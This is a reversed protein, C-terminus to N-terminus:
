AALRGKIAALGLAFNPLRRALPYGSIPRPEATPLSLPTDAAEVWAAIDRGIPGALAVGRGNCAQVALTTEDVRVYRPQLDANLWATGTWAYELTMARWGPIRRALRANVARDLSAPNRGWPMTAATVLRGQADYRITFIDPGRDTMAHGEPLIRRRLDDPLPVTAVERVALPLVTRALQPALMMNGGNAALVVRDAVVTGRDTRLLRQAGSTEISLVRTATFIRAGLEAARRGFERALALPNVAGGSRDLLAGSYGICGTLRETATTDLLEVDDRWGQWNRVVQECAPRQKATFPVIFGTDRADCALAHRRVLDFTYTGAGAVMRVFREGVGDAFEDRLSAPNGRVLQPAILGGSALSACNRGNEQGADLVIVDVGAEALHLATSMGVLGGGVIAVRSRAAGALSNEAPFPAATTSWLSLGPQKIQTTM